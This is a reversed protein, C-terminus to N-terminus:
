AVNAINVNSITNRIVFIFFYNYMTKINKIRGYIRYEKKHGHILLLNM